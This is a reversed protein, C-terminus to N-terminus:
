RLRSQSPADSAISNHRDASCLKPRPISNSKYQVRMCAKWALAGGASQVPTKTASVFYPNSKCYHEHGMDLGQSLSRSPSIAGVSGEADAPHNGVRDTSLVEEPLYGQSKVLLSGKCCRRLAGQERGLIPSPGVWWWKM